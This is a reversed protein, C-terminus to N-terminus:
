RPNSVRGKKIVTRRIGFSAWDTPQEVRIKKEEIDTLVMMASNFCFEFITMQTMVEYPTMGYRKAMAEVIYALSRNEFFGKLNNVSM